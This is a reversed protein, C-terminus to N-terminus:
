LLLVEYSTYHITWTAIVFSFQLVNRGWLDEDAVFSPSSCSLNSKFVAALSLM